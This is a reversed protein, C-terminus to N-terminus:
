GKEQQFDNALVVWCAAMIAVYVHGNPYTLRPMALSAILQGGFSAVLGILVYRDVANTARGILAVGRAWLGTLATAALVFGFLGGKSLFYMWVNHVTQYEAQGYALTSTKSVFGMAEFTSGMGGGMLPHQMFVGWAGKIEEIRGRLSEGLIPAIGTFYAYFTAASFLAAVTGGILTVALLSRRTAQSPILFFGTLALSLAVAVYATRMMGIAIAAGFLGIGLVCGFRQVRTLTPCFFLSALVTLAIEFLMHGNPRVSQVLLPGLQRPVYEGFANQTNVVHRTVFTYCFFALALCAIATGLAFLFWLGQYLMRKDRILSAFAIYSCLFIPYRCEAIWRHLDAERLLGCVAIDLFFAGYLIMPIDTLDHRWSAKGQLLKAGFHFLLMFLLVERPHWEIGGFQKTVLSRYQHAAAMYGVFIVLPFRSPGFAFLLGFAIALAAAVGMTAGRTYVFYASLLALVAEEALLLARSEPFLIARTTQDLWGGFRGRISMPLEARNAMLGILGKTQTQCDLWRFLRCDVKRIRCNANGTSM